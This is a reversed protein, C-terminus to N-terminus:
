KTRWLKILLQVNVQLKMKIDYFIKGLETIKEVVINLDSTTIIDNCKKIINTIENRLEQLVKVLLEIKEIKDDYDLENFPKFKLLKQVLVSTLIATSGFGILGVSLLPITIYPILFLGTAITAAGITATTITAINKIHSKENSEYKKIESSILKILILCKKKL